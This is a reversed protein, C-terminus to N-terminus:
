SGKGGNSSKIILVVGLAIMLIGVILMRMGGKNNTGYCVMYTERPSLRLAWTTLCLSKM